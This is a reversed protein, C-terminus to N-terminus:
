TTAQVRQGSVHSIPKACLSNSRASLTTSCHRYIVVFRIPDRGMEKVNPSASISGIALCHLRTWCGLFRIDHPCDKLDFYKKLSKKRGSFDPLTQLPQLTAIVGSPLRGLLIQDLGLSHDPM